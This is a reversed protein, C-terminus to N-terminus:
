PRQRRLLMGPKGCKFCDRGSGGGGAGGFGRSDGNAGGDSTLEAIIVKAKDIAEQTGVLEVNAVPDSRDKQNIFM